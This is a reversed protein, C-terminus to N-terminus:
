KALKILFMPDEWQFFSKESTEVVDIINKASDTLCPPEVTGALKGAAIAKSVANDAPHWAIIKNDEIKIRGWYYTNEAQSKEPLLNFYLWAKGKMIKLNYIEPKEKDELIFMRVLGKDPEVVKLTVAGDANIWTGNIHQPDLKYEQLGVMNKSPVTCAVLMLLLPLLLFFKANIM